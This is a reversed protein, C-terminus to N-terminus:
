LLAGHAHALRVRSACVPLSDTGCLVATGLAHEVTRSRRRLLSFDATAGRSCCQLFLQPAVSCVKPLGCGEDLVMPSVMEPLVMVSRLLPEFMTKLLQSNGKPVM